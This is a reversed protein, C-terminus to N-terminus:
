KTKEKKVVTFAPGRKVDVGLSACLATFQGRIELIDMGNKYSDCHQVSRAIDQIEERSFFM